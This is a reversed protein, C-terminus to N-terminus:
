RLWPGSLSFIPSMTSHALQLPRNPRATDLADDRTARLVGVVDGDITGM